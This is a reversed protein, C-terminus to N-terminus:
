FKWRKQMYQKNCLKYVKKYMVISIIMNYVGIFFIDQVNVYINSIYLIVILFVGKLLSLGLCSMVPILSKEKFIGDGIAGALICVIMNVLANIGLGNTFYIDQLLGSFAGLWLGEWKGNIISYCIVFIFLLSPYIGRISFYPMLANDIIFFLILFLILVLIKKM